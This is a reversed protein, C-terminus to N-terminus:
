LEEELYREHADHLATVRAAPKSEPEKWPGYGDRGVSRLVAHQRQGMALEAPDKVGEKDWNIWAVRVVDKLAAWARGSAKQGAEDADFGLLVLKPNLRRLQEFQPLHLGAGYCGLASIGAEYLSSADAAGEVLVVAQDGKHLAAFFTRSAAWRPPYVYRPGDGPDAKRRGVGALKGRDTRVPFVADGTLPDGGLKMAWRTAADFREAFNGLSNAFLEYYAEPYIRCAMEQELMAQLDSVKPAKKGDVSGKAGCAYCFWVGKLVNVSASAQNDDHEPCRFPRETGQGADIAEQLSTM